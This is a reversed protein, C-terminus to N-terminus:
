GQREPADVDLELLAESVEQEPNLDLRVRGPPTEPGSASLLHTVVTDEEVEKPGSAYRAGQFDERLGELADRIGELGEFATRSGCDVVLTGHEAFHELVGDWDGSALGANLGEVLAEPLDDAGRDNVDM